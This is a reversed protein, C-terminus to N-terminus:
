VAPIRRRESEVDDFWTELESLMRRVREPDEGALDRQELPDAAINYLEAPPPAPIVRNPEPWDFIQPVNEPHYKYEIDMEVYQEALREDAPTAFRIDSIVPRVLKWDGDRMAANSTGIPSYNNWQWFRPPPGDADEGRLVASDM